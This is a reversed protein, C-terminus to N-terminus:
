WKAGSFRERLRRIQQLRNRWSSPYEGAEHAREAWMLSFICENLALNRVYAPLSAGSIVKEDAASSINPYEPRTLIQVRYFRDATPDSRASSTPPQQEQQKRTQLFTTRASPTIVIYVTNFQSPFTDFAFPAGSNNFVINVFDNGIHRKKNSTNLKVDENNPMLTTVHFVLETVENHWVVAHKGDMDNARDLGQTNFKADKLRTLTGLGEVFQVYDPSGMHNWLIEDETKQREGVYIVGARHSDLASTMDFLKIARGLADDKTPLDLITPSGLLSDPRPVSVKGYIKGNPDDMLVSIWDEPSTDTTIGVCEAPGRGREVTGPILHLTTGSPRRVTIISSGTRLSTETTIMIIGAIVQRVVLRGDAPTFPEYTDDRYDGANVRDIIDITVLGQDEVVDDGEVTKYRLCSMLYKQLEPRDSPKLVLYWFIMVHHALAYVYQPLADSTEVSAKSDQDSAPKAPWHRENLAGTVRISQLYSGCVGFIKKYDHRQFNRVLDPLRSLGALFELVHIAVYRQTVMKSMKDIVDDMYSSMLDPIEYCCITLAYICPISVVYDRSGATKVFSAAIDLLEQKSMQRHYTVVATLVRILHSAIYSKSLGTYSPPDNYQSDDIQECLLGSLRRIFQIRPEFLNHNALLEPLGILLCDYISWDESEEMISLITREWQQLSLYPIFIARDTSSGTAKPEPEIFITGEVDSRVRLMFRVAETCKEAAHCITDFLAAPEDEPHQIQLCLILDVLVNVLIGANGRPTAEDLICEKFLAVLSDVDDVSGEVSSGVLKAYRHALVDLEKVYFPSHALQRLLTPFANSWRDKPLSAPWNLIVANSLSPTLPRGITTALDAVMPLQRAELHDTRHCISDIVIVAYPSKPMSTICTRIVDVLIDWSCEADLETVAHQDKLLDALTEMIQERLSESGYQAPYQLAELLQLLDPTPVTDRVDEKLWLKQFIIMLAGATQAHGTKSALISEDGCGVIELLVEVTEGGLHSELIHILATRVQKALTKTKRAKRANYYAQSIFRVGRPLCESPLYSYTGINDILHIIASVEASASSEFAADLSADLLSAIDNESFWKAHFRIALTADDLAEALTKSHLTTERPSDPRNEAKSTHRIARVLRECLTREWPGIEVSSSVPHIIEVSNGLDPSDRGGSSMSAMDFPLSRASRFASRSIFFEDAKRKECAFLALGM